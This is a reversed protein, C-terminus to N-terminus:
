RTGNVDRKRAGLLMNLTAELAKEFAKMGRATNQYSIRRIPHLDFPIDEDRQSVLVVPKALVHAIGIEYFVNPNRQTCDAVIIKANQIAAWVDAMVAHATFFDDGRAVSLSLRDKCVKVIHRYVPRLAKDFPMAIFVDPLEQRQSPEPFADPLVIKARPNQLEALWTLSIGLTDQINEWCPSVKIRLATTPIADPHDLKHDPDLDNEYVVRGPPSQTFNDRRVWIANLDMGEVLVLSAQKLDQLLDIVAPAEGFMRSGWNIFRLDHEIQFSTLSEWDHVDGDRIAKLLLLKYRSPAGYTRARAIARKEDDSLARLTRRARTM